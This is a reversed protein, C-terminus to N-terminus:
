RKIQKFILSQQYMQFKIGNPIMSLQKLKNTNPSSTITQNCNEVIIIFLLTINIPLINM